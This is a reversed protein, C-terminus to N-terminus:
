VQSENCLETKFTVEFERCAHVQIMAKFVKARDGGAKHKKKQWKRYEKQWNLQKYLFQLQDIAPAAITGEGGGYLRHCPMPLLRCLSALLHSTPEM